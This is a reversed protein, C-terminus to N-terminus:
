TSPKSAIWPSSGKVAREYKFYADLARRVSARGRHLLVRLHTERINLINCVVKPEVDQVDRLLVARHQLAPLADLARRIVDLTESCQVISAADDLAWAVLREDWLGARGRGPEWEGPEGADGPMEVPVELRSRRAHRAAITRARRVLISFIWTRLSARGEFRRLGRIVGLWTEQAIDEALAPSRTFTRALALLRPHLDDVLEAFASADGARLRLVFAWESEQRPEFM